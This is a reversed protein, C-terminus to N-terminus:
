QAFPDSDAGSKMQPKPNLGLKSEPKLAGVAAKVEARTRGLVSAELDALMKEIEQHVRESQSVILIGNVADITGMGVGSDQWADPAVMSQVLGVLTQEGTPESRNKELDAKMLELIKDLKQDLLASADPGKKTQSDDANGDRATTATDQPVSFAGGGGAGGRSAGGFGGGAHVALARKPLAEVLDRCDYTKLRFWQSDAADDISIIIVVGDDIVYTANKVALMLSLGKSLPVGTLNISIPEDGTLSDDEASSSLLFNVGLRTELDEMVDAFPDEDYNLDTIQRLAHETKITLETGPSFQIPPETASPVKEAAKGDQAISRSPAGFRSESPWIAMLLVAAVFSGAISFTVFRMMWRRKKHNIVSQFNKAMVAADGFEELARKIAEQKEVGESELDAVRMQLHDRLEGAIQDRQKHSLQLLKGILALYNEFEQNSM